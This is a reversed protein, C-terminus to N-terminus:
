TTERKFRGSDRTKVEKRREDAKRRGIKARAEAEEVTMQTTIWLKFADWSKFEETWAGGRSNDIGVIIKGDTYYFQGEPEYDERGTTNSEWIEKAKEKTIKEVKNAKAWAERKRDRIYARVVAEDRSQVSIHESGKNDRTYVILPKRDGKTARVLEYIGKTDELQWGDAQLWRKFDEIKSRHLLNRNAMDNVEQFSNNEKDRSTCHPCVYGSDPIKTKVSINWECGCKSCEINRPRSKTGNM